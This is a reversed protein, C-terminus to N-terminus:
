SGTDSKRIRVIEERPARKRSVLKASTRTQMGSQASMKILSIIVVTVISAPILSLLVLFFPELMTQELRRSLAIFHQPTAELSAQELEEQLAQVRLTHRQLYSSVGRYAVVSLVLLAFVFWLFGTKRRFSRWLQRRLRRKKSM